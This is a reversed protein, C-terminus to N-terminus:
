AASAPQQPTAVTPLTALAARYKTASEDTVIARAELNSVHGSTVGMALALDKVRVRAATRELKLDLGTTPM